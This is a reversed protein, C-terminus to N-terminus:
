DCTEWASATLLSLDKWGLRLCGDEEVMTYGESPLMGLLLSGQAAPNGALSVARFGSVGMMKEKGLAEKAGGLGLINRIEYGLLQREVTHRETSEAEAGDGLADFIASYYHLADVFRNLFDDGSCCCCCRLDQEVITIIKPKMLKLLKLANSEDGIVDYFSHQMWHIVLTEEGGSKLELKGELDKINGLKGEVGAFEFPINLAAAFEALRRGTSDLVDGSPGLATLRFSKLQRRRPKSALIQFFGPWQLGQMIDLDIVHVRDSGDVAIQIAQNATFHSFKILPTLSNYTQLASLVKQHHFRILGGGGGGGGEGGLYSAIIRASIAETFYAGVRQASSGFPSSLEVMEPLLEAAEDVNGVAVCEASRLLLGFLRLGASDVD